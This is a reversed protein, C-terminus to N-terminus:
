KNNYEILAKELVPIDQQVIRWIISPDVGFYEHVSINRFSRIKRWEVDVLSDKTQQSIHNGAEGIIELQKIVAFRLMAENYMDSETKGATFEKIYAIAEMMHALRMQEGLSDKM